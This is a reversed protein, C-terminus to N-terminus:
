LADGIAKSLLEAVAAYGAATPHFSNAPSTTLGGAELTRVGHVWPADSGCLGHPAWVATQDAHERWDVVRVRNTSTNARRAAREIADGTRIVGLNLARANEVTFGFCTSSTWAAPDAFFLPYTVIFLHGKPAMKDRLALMVNVLEDEIGAWGAEDGGENGPHDADVGCDRAISADLGLAAALQTAYRKVLCASSVIRGFGLDNGGLTLTVVQVSSDVRDIQAPVEASQPELVDDLAAEACPAFRLTIRHGRLRLLEAARGVYSAEVDRACGVPLRIEGLGSSYSDGLAAWRFEKADERGVVRVGVVGASVFLVVVAVLAIRRVTM